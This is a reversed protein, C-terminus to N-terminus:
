KDFGGTAPWQGHICFYEREEATKTKSARQFEKWATWRERWTLRSPEFISGLIPNEPLYGNACFFEVDEISRGEFYNDLIESNRRWEAMEIRELRRQITSNM